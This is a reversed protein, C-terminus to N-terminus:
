FLNIQKNKVEYSSDYRENDGKPYPQKPYGLNNILRNRLRKSALIMFYRHKQSRPVKEFKDPRKNM